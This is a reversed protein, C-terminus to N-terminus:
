SAFIEILVQVDRIELSSALDSSKDQYKTVFPCFISSIQLYPWLIENFWSNYRWVFFYSVRKPVPYNKPKPSCAHCVPNKGDIGILKSFSLKAITCESSTVAETSSLSCHPLFYLPFMQLPPSRCTYLSYIFWTFLIFLNVQWIWYSLMAHLGFNLKM